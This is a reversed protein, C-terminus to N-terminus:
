NKLNSLDQNIVVPNMGRIEEYYNSDKSPPNWLYIKKKLHFALTMEMLVNGGIYGVQNHKTNNVVLIIDAAVVKKFHDKILQTKIKYDKENTLWTRQSSVEFNGTRKMRLATKPVKVKFGLKKLQDSIELVERYFSASACITVIKM